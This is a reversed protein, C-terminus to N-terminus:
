IEGAGQDVAVPLEIEVEVPFGERVSQTVLCFDEFLGACRHFRIQDDPDIDPEVVVQLKGIRLRGGANRAYTGVVRVRVDDVPVRGKQLCFVLSAALCHGVAAALLRAPNPGEGEGLPPFEDLLLPPLDTQDFEAQFRYNGTRNVTVSFRNELATM